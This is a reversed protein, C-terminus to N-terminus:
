KQWGDLSNDTHSVHVCMFAWLFYHHHSLFSLLSSLVILSSHISKCQRSRHWNFIVSSEIATSAFPVSTTATSTVDGVISAQYTPSEGHAGSPPVIHYLTHHNWCRVALKTSPILTDRASLPVGQWILIAAWCLQTEYYKPTKIWAWTYRGLILCSTHTIVSVCCKKNKRQVSYLNM